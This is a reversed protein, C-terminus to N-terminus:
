VLRYLRLVDCAEQPYQKDQAILRIDKLLVPHGNQKTQFGVIKGTKVGVLFSFFWEYNCFRRV